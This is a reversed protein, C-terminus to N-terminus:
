DGKLDRKARFVDKGTRLINLLRDKNDIFDYPSLDLVWKYGNITDPNNDTIKPAKCAIVGLKFVDPYKWYNVGLSELIELREDYSKENLIREAQRRGNNQNRLAATTASNVAHNACTNQTLLLYNVAEIHSPLPFIVCRFTIPLIIDPPDKMVKMLSYFHSTITSTIVSVMKQINNGLWPERELTADNTLILNIEKHFYYGFVADDIDRCSELMTHSLLSMMRICYPKPLNISAKKYSNIELRAIVPLKRTISYDTTKEYEGIRKKM